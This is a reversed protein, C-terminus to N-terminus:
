WGEIIRYFRQPANTSDADNLQMVGNSISVPASLPLWDILNSSYQVQLGAGDFGGAFSSKDADQSTILFTGDPQLQPIGILQPVHVTLVFNTTRVSGVANSAILYYTGSSARYTPSITFVPV